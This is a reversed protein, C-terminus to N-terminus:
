SSVSSSAGTSGSQIHRSKRDQWGVDSTRVIQQSQVTNSGDQHDLLEMLDNFLSAFRGKPSLQERLTRVSVSATDLVRKLREKEKYLSHFSTELQVHEVANHHLQRTLSTNDARTTTVQAQLVQLHSQSKTQDEMVSVLQNSLRVVLKEVSSAM